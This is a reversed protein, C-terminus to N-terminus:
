FSLHYQEEKGQVVNFGPPFYEERGSDTFSIFPLYKKVFVFLLPHKVTNKASFEQKDMLLPRTTDPDKVGLYIFSYSMPGLLKHM